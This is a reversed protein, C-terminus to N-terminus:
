TVNQSFLLVIFVILDTTPLSLSASCLPNWLLSSNYMIDVTAVNDFDIFHLSTAWDHRVRKSGMSQLRGPVETWPIEWALISSHTAMEKELSFRYLTCWFHSKIWHLSHVKLSLSTDIYIWRICSITLVPTTSMHPLFYIPIRQVKWEIKSHVWFQEKFFFKKLIFQNKFLYILDLIPNALFNM